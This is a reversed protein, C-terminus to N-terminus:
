TIRVSVYIYVSIYIYPCTYIHTHMYVYIYIYRVYVRIINYAHVQAGGSLSLCVSLRVLCRFMESPDKSQLLQTPLELHCTLIHVCFDTLMLVQPKQKRM